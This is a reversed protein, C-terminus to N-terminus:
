PSFRYLLQKTYSTKVTVGVPLPRCWWAPLRAPPAAPPVFRPRILRWAQCWCASEQQQHAGFCCSGAVPARTLMSSWWYWSNYWQKASRIHHEVDTFMEYIKVFLHTCDQVVTNCSDLIRFRGDDACSDFIWDSSTVAGGIVGNLSSGATCVSSSRAGSTDNAHIQLAFRQRWRENSLLTQSAPLTNM